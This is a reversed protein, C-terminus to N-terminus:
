HEKKVGISISGEIEAIPPVCDLTQLRFKDGCIVVIKIKLVEM